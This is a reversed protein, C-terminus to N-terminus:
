KGVIFHFLYDNLLVLLYFNNFHVSISIYMCVQDLVIILSIINMEHLPVNM